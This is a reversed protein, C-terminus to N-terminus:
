TDLWAHSSGHMRSLDDLYIMTLYITGLILTPLKEYRTCVRRSEKLWGVMREVANRLRYLANRFYRTPRERRENAKGPIVPRIDLEELLADIWDAPYSKDGCLALPWAGLEGKEDRWGKEAKALLPRLM